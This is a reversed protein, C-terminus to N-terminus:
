FMDSDNRCYKADLVVVRSKKLGVMVEVHTEYMHIHLNVINYSDM